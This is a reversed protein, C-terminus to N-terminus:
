LCQLVVGSTAIEVWVGCCMVSKAGWGLCRLGTVSKAGKIYVGSECHDTMMVPKNGIHFWAQVRLDGEEGVLQRLTKYNIAFKIVFQGTKSLSSNMISDFLFM